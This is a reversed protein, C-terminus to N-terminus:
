SGPKGLRKTLQDVDRWLAQWVARESEPL